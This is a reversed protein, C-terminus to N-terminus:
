PRANGEEQFAPMRARRKRQRDVSLVSVRSLPLRHIGNVMGVQLMPPVRSPAREKTLDVHAPEVVGRRAVAVSPVFLRRKRVWMSQQPHVAGPFNSVRKTSDQGAGSRTCRLV